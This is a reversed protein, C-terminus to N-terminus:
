ATASKDNVSQRPEAWELKLDAIGASESQALWESENMKAGALDDVIKVPDFRHGDKQFVREDGAQRYMLEWGDRDLAAALASVLVERGYQDCQNRDPLFGPTRLIQYGFGSSDRALRAIDSVALGALAADHRRASDQWAKIYVKAGVQAWPILQPDTVGFERSRCKVFDHEIKPLAELLQMSSRDDDARVTGPAGQIARIREKNAPHTEYAPEQSDVEFETCNVGLSERTRIGSCFHEFGDLLPPAFGSKLAPLYEAYWYLLWFANVSDSAELVTQFSQAGFHHAAVSDAVFEQDRSVKFCARVFPDLLRSALKSGEPSTEHFAVLFRQIAKNTEAIWAWAFSSGPHLHALEHALLARMQHVTLARFFPLGIALFRSSKFGAFGQHFGASAAMNNHLHIHDPVPTGILNAVENVAKFLAPQDRAGM